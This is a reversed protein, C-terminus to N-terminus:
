CGKERRSAVRSCEAGEGLGRCNPPPDSCSRGAGREFESDALLALVIRGALEEQELFYRFRSTAHHSAAAVYRGVQDPSCDVLRLLQPRLDFLARALQHQLDRPLIAHTIPWAIISFWEAWPGTPKVGNYASHFKQFWDRLSRREGREHWQPTRAEFSTWYEEGDYDYGQETAYVVWVLWHRGLSAGDRLRAHLLKTIEAIQDADLGHELAFVPLRTAKRAGALEAFHRELRTQWADLSESM